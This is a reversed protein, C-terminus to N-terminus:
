ETEDSVVQLTKNQVAEFYAARMKVARAIAAKDAKKGSKRVGTTCVAIQRGEGKFYFLRLPGKIFEYIQERKNVEHSWANPVNQLGLEAVRELMQVLGTRASKTSAEGDALFLEAACNGNEMVAVVQYKDDALGKVKM